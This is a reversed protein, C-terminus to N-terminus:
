GDVSLLAPIEETTKSQMWVAGSVVPFEYMLLVKLFISITQTLFWSHKMTVSFRIGSRKSNQRKEPEQEEGPKREHHLTRVGVAALVIVGVAAISSFWLYLYVDAFSGSRCTPPNEPESWVWCISATLSQWLEQEWLAPLDNWLYFAVDVYKVPVWFYFWSQQIFTKVSQPQFAQKGGFVVITSTQMRCTQVCFKSFLVLLGCSLFVVGLRCLLDSRWKPSASLPEVKVVLLTFMQLVIM